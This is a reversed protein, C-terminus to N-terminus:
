LGLIAEADPFFFDMQPLGGPIGAINASHRDIAVLKDALRLDIIIETNSPAMSIVRNVQGTVSMKRGTRDIIERTSYKACGAATLMFVALIFVSKRAKNM